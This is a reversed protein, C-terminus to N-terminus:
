DIYEQEFLELSPWHIGTLKKDWSTDICYGFIGAKDKHIFVDRHANHGYVQLTSAIRRPSGRNWLLGDNLRPWEEAELLNMSWDPRRPAHSIFIKEFVQGDSATAPGELELYKPLQAIWDMTDKPLSQVLNKYQNIHQLIYDELGDFERGYYSSWRNMRSGLAHLGHSDMPPQEDPFFSTMTAHGGNLLWIGPEYTRKGQYEHLMMHEHNALVAMGSAKFFDLVQKSAPGRDVMDGVSIPVGPPMKALLAQLTKYNGAIDGVINYSM